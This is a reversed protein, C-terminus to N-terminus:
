CLCAKKTVRKGGFSVLLQETRTSSAPLPKVQTSRLMEQVKTFEPMSDM